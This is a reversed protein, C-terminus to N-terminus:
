GGLEFARRDGNRPEQIVVYKQAIIEQFNPSTRHWDHLDVRIPLDSEDFDNKLEMMTYRDIKVEGVISLDLDSYKRAKGNVRSGYARIECEPVRARLISTLIELHEPKLDLM